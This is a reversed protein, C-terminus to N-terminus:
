YWWKWRILKQLEEIHEVEEDRIHGLVERDHKGPLEGIHKNYTHIADNELKIDRQLKKRRQQKTIM